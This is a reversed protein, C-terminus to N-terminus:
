KGDAGFLAEFDTGPKEKTSDTGALSDTNQIFEECYNNSRRDRVTETTLSRCRDSNSSYLACNICSHLYDDCNECITKFGVTRGDYRYGCNKCIM